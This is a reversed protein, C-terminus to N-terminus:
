RFSRDHFSECSSRAGPDAAPPRGNTMKRSEYTSAASSLVLGGANREQWSAWVIIRGIDGKTSVDERPFLWQAAAPCASGGQDEETGATAYFLVVRPLLRKM